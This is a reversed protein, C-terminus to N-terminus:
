VKGGECAIAFTALYNLERVCRECVYTKHHKKIGAYKHLHPVLTEPAAWMILNAVGKGCRPCTHTASLENLWVETSIAQSEGEDRSAQCTKQTESPELTLPNYLPNIFPNTHETPEFIHETTHETTHETSVFAHETQRYAQSLLARKRAAKFRSEPLLSALKLIEHQTTPKNQQILDLLYIGAENLYLRDRKRPEPYHIFWLLARRRGRLSKLARRVQTFHLGAAKAVKRISTATQSSTAGLTKLTELIRLCVEDSRIREVIKRLERLM